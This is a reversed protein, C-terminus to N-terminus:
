HGQSLSRARRDAASMSSRHINRSTSRRFFTKAVEVHEQFSQVIPVDVKDIYQKQEVFNELGELVEEDEQKALLSWLAGDRFRLILSRLEEQESPTM